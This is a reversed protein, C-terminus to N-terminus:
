FDPLELDQGGRPGGLSWGYFSIVHIQYPIPKRISKHKKSSSDAMLLNPFEVQPLIREMLRHSYVYTYLIYVPRFIFFNKSLFIPSCSFVRPSHSPSLFIFILSCPSPPYKNKEYQLWDISDIKRKDTSMPLEIAM